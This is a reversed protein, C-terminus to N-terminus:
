AVVNFDQHILTNSTFSHRSYDTCTNFATIRALYELTLQIIRNVEIYVITIFQIQITYHILSPYM